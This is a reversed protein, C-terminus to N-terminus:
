QNKMRGEVRGNMTSKGGKTKKLRSAQKMNTAESQCARRMKTELDEYEKRWQIRETRFGETMKAELNDGLSTVTGEVDNMSNTLRAMMTM